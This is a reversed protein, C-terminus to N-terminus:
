KVKGGAFPLLAEKLHARWHGWNHGEYYRKIEFNIGKKQLVDALKLHSKEMNEFLGYSLFLFSKVKPFNEVEKIIRENEIWFAGSQSFVFDIQSAYHKLAYVSILGGLSAGGMALRNNKLAYKEKLFPLLEKFLMKLYLDNFWYERNRNRPEVFVAILPELTKQGILNDLIIKAKGYKLYDGGDHFIIIPSNPGAQQHKYFYVRRRNNLLRSKFVITDLTSNQFEPKFLVEQPFQYGPMVLVSNQGFGGEDKLPNFPDLFWRKGCVFKYEVRAKQPLTLSTYWFRTNGIRKLAISDPQWATLDGALYVTQGTTDEVLFYVTSDEVFPFENQAVFIKLRETQQDTPLTRIEDLLRSFKKSGSTCHTALILMLSLLILRFIKM